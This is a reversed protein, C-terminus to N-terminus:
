VKWYYRTNNKSYHTLNKEQENRQVVCRMESTEGKKNDDEGLENKLPALKMM